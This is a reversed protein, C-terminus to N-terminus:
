FNPQGGSQSAVDCPKATKSITQDVYQVLDHVMSRNGNSQGSLAGICLRRSTLYIKILIRKPQTGHGYHGNAGALGPELDVRRDADSPEYLIAPAPVQGPYSRFNPQSGSQSAVDCPKATKPITQDVHQVLDHVM